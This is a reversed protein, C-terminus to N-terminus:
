NMLLLLIYIRWRKLSYRIKCAPSQDKDTGCQM